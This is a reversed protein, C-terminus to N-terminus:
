MCLLIRQENFSVKRNNLPPFGISASISKTVFPLKMYTLKELFLTAVTEKYHERKEESLSKLAM